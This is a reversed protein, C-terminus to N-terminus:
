ELFQQLTLQESPQAKVSAQNKAQLEQEKKSSKSRGLTTRSPQAPSPTEDARIEISSPTNPDLM